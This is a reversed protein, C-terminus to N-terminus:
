PFVRRGAMERGMADIAEPGQTNIQSAAAPFALEDEFPLHRDHLTIFRQAMADLAPQPPPEGASVEHLLPALRAWAARIEAHDDLLRQATRLSAEDGLAQLAPVVHREEDEHHAPAALSFYRLVDAAAQRAQADAGHAPLHECLRGLLALSRRVRDHCASLMEFPQEFGVAPAEFGPFATPPSV